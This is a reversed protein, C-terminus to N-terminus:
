ARGQSLMASLKKQFAMAEAETPQGSLDTWGFRGTQDFYWAGRIGSPFVAKGSLMMGPIQLDDIVVEVNVEGAVANLANPMGPGALPAEAAAPAATEAAEAPKVEEEAKPQAIEINHDLMLFRLDMFLINMGEEALKKQMANLDMGEAAMERVRKVMEATVANNSM